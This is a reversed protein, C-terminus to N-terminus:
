HGHARVGPIVAVHYMQAILYPRWSALETGASNYKRILNSTSAGSVRFTAYVNSGLDVGVGECRVSGPGKTWLITGTQLPSAAPTFKVCKGSGGCAAYGFGDRGLVMQPVDSSAGTYLASGIQWPDFTVRRIRGQVSGGYSETDAVYVNGSNDSMCATANNLFTVASVHSYNGNSLQFRYLRSASGVQTVLYGLSNTPDLCISVIPATVPLTKTWILNGLTDLKRFTGNGDGTYSNGSTDVAIAYVPYSHSGYTWSVSVGTKPVKVVNNTMGWWSNGAGDCAVSQPGVIGSGYLPWGDVVELDQNLAYLRDSAREVVWIVRDGAPVFKWDGGIKVANTTVAKWAGGIKAFEANVFKWAGGVKAFKAQAM